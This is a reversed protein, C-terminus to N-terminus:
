KNYVVGNIKVELSPDLKSMRDIIVQCYKPDLEMGYCKRKLQHAAVMTSGSGLYADLVLKVKNKSHRDAYEFCWQIIEQPKQTPHNKEEQNAKARAYEKIRLANNFSTWAMEGDALSFGRQGKDWILWGMTPPLDDTFYNGGWIIQSNTIQCLYQLVGSQPKSEDWGGEYQKWGHKEQGLKMSGAYGIGYPPDTLLLDAKEGDMLKAVQDSDTSDGCLLRHEGIEILDGLVVDVQMDDPQEYDDEEAELETADDFPFGELGWDALEEADWENALLDWDHEGFGVNDAIIFRRAEEDTLDEARKVWEDPLETYGLEKLAKLRMNGGLVINDQNIVMPRLAMMKPFEKISKKLKEFKEDKILRPNNPNSKIDTVKM